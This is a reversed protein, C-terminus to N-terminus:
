RSLRKLAAKILEGVDASPDAGKLADLISNKDYGLVLLAETAEALKGSPATAISAGASAKTRGGATGSLMDKSVKDRLELVIRAATKAGVNPARSISKVDETCVALALDDPTMISLIGMAAKPGVGSVSILQLFAKREESSSFGFLEIGDERVALHTYLKVNEGIKGSLLSSTVLSVTMQYGVGGCDVVALAAELAALKGNLYYFM